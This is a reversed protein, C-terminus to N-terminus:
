LEYALEYQPFLVETRMGASSLAIKFNILKKLKKKKKKYWNESSFTSTYVYHDIRIQM